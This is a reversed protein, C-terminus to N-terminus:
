GRGGRVQNLEVITEVIKRIERDREEALALSIDVVAAQAQTFGPDQESLNMQLHANRTCSARSAGMALM